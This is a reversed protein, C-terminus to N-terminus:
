NKDGGIFVGMGISGVWRKLQYQNKSSQWWFNNYETARGWLFGLEASLFVVESLALNIGMSPKVFIGGEPKFQHEEKDRDIFGPFTYGLNLKYFPSLRRDSFYGRAELGLSYLVLNGSPNFDYRGATLGIGLGRIKQYGAALHLGWSLGDYHHRIGGSSLASISGELYFLKSRNFLPPAPSKEIVVGIEYRDVMEAPYRIQLSGDRKEFLLGSDDIELIKGSVVSGTKLHIRDLEIFDQSHAESALFSLLALLLILIPKIPLLECLLKM